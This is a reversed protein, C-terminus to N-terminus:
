DVKGGHEPAGRGCCEVHVLKGSAVLAEDCAEMISDIMRGAERRYENDDWEYPGRGELIWSYSKALKKVEALAKALGSRDQHLVDKLREIEKSLAEREADAEEDGDSVTFSERGCFDCATRITVLVDKRTREFTGMRCFICPEGISM